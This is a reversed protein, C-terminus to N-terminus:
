KKLKGYLFNLLFAILISVFIEVIMYAYNVSDVRSNGISFISIFEKVPNCPITICEIRWYVPFYFVLFLGFVMGFLVLFRLNFIDNFKM